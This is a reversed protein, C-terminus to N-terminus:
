FVTVHFFSFIPKKLSGFKTGQNINLTLTRSVQTQMIILCFRWRSKREREVITAGDAMKYNIVEGWDREIQLKYSQGTGGMNDIM